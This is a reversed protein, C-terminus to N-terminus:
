EGKPNPRDAPTGNASGNAPPLPKSVTETPPLAPPAPLRLFRRRNEAWARLCHDDEAGAEGLLQCRKLETRLPDDHVDSASSSAPAAPKPDGRKIHFATTAIAIVVFAMAGVRAATGVTISM